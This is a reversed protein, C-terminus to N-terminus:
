GGTSTPSSPRWSKPAASSRHTTPTWSSRRASWRPANVSPARTAGSSRRHLRRVLEAGLGMGPRRDAHGLRHQADSPDTGHGAGRAVPQDPQVHTTRRGPVPPGCRGGGAAHVSPVRPLGVGGDSRGPVRRSAAPTRRRLHPPVRRPRGRRRASRCLQPLRRPGRRTGAGRSRVGSACVDDRYGTFPLDISRCDIGDRALQDMVLLWCWGEMHAGHVFLVTSADSRPM